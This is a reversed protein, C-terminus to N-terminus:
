AISMRLFGKKRNLQFPKLIGRMRRKHFDMVKTKDLGDGGLIEKLIEKFPKASQSLRGIVMSHAEGLSEEGVELGM